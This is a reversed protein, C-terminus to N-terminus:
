RMKNLCTSTSPLDLSIDALKLEHISKLGRIYNVFFIPETKMWISDLVVSPRLNRPLFSHFQESPMLCKLKPSKQVWRVMRFSYFGRKRLVTLFCNRFSKLQRLSPINRMVIFRAYISSVPNNWRATVIASSTVAEKIKSKYCGSSSM